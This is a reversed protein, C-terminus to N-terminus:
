MHRKEFLHERMQCMSSLTSIILTYKVASKLVIADVKEALGACIYNSLISLQIVTVTTPFTSRPTLDSYLEISKAFCHIYGEDEEAVSICSVAVTNWYTEKIEALNYGDRDFEFVQTCKTSVHPRSCLRLKALSSMVAAWVFARAGDSTTKAGNTGGTGISNQPSIKQQANDQSESRQLWQREASVAAQIFNFQGLCITM